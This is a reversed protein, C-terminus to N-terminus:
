IRPVPDDNVHATVCPVPVLIDDDHHDVVAVFHMMIHFFIDLVSDDM